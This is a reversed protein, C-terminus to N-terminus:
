NTRPPIAAQTGPHDVSILFTLGDSEKARDPEGSASGSTVAHEELFARDITRGIAPHAPAVADLDMPEADDPLSWGPLLRRPDGARGRDAFTRLWTSDATGATSVIVVQAGTRTARTPGIAQM